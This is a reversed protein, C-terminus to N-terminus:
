NAEITATNWFQLVTDYKGLSCEQFIPGFVCTLVRRRTICHFYLDNESTVLILTRKSYDIMATLTRLERGRFLLFYLGTIFVVRLCLNLAWTISM